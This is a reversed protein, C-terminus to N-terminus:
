ARAISGSYRFIKRLDAQTAARVVPRHRTIPKGTARAMVKADSLALVQSNSSIM